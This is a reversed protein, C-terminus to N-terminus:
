AAGGRQREIYARIDEISYRKASGIRVAPLEGRRTLNFLSKECLALAAAAERPTLLLRTPSPTSGTM